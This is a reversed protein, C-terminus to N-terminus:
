LSINSSESRCSVYHTTVGTLRIISCFACLCLSCIEPNVELVGSLCGLSYLLHRQVSGLSVQLIDHSLFLNNGESSKHASYASMGLTLNVFSSLSSPRKLRALKQQIHQLICLGISLVLTKISVM